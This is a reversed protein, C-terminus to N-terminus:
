DRKRMLLLQVTSIIGLISIAGLGLGEMTDQKSIVADLKSRLLAQEAKQDGLQAEVVSLRVLPISSSQGRVLHLTMISGFAVSCVAIRAITFLFQLSPKTMISM